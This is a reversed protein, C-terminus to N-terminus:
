KLLLGLAGIGASILFAIVGAAAFIRGEFGAFRTELASLRGEELNHFDTALTNISKTLEDRLKGIQDYLDRLTVGNKTGMNVM